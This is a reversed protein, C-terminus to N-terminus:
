SKSSMREPLDSEKAFREVWRWIEPMFNRFVAEAFVIEEIRYGRALEEIREVPVRSEGREIKSIFNATNAGIERAVDGQSINKVKRVLKLWEGFEKRKYIAADSLGSM